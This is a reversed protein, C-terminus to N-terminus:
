DQVEITINKSAITTSIESGNRSGRYKIELKGEYETETILEPAITISHISLNQTGVTCYSQISTSVVTRDLEPISIRYNVLPRGEVDSVNVTADPVDLRYVEAGFDSQSLTASEALPSNVITANGTGMPIDNACGDSDSTLELPGVPGFAIATIAFLAVTAHPLVSVADM